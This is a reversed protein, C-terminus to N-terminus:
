PLAEYTIGAQTLWRTSGAAFQGHAWIGVGDPDSAVGSYDGWSFSTFTASGAQLTEETGLCNTCTSSPPIPAVVISAYQTPSAESFVITKSGSANIDVAGFWRDPGAFTGGAWDNITTISPYASVDLETFGECDDANPDCITGHGTSLRGAQWIAFLL